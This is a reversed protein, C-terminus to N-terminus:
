PPSLVFDGLAVPADNNSIGPAEPVVVTTRLSAIIVAPDNNLNPPPPKNSPDFLKVELIYNGPPVQQFDALGNSDVSGAFTRQQGLAAVVAPDHHYRSLAAEQAEPSVFDNRAPEPPVLVDSSLTALANSWDIAAFGPPAELQASASRGGAGLAVTKTEGVAVSVTTQLTSVDWRGSERARCSLKFTGAPVKDFLFCGENDSMVHNLITMADSFDSYDDLDIERNAAIEGGISVTGEVHAWSSLHVNAKQRGPTIPIVAWGTKHFIVLSESLLPKKLKFCGNADSANTAM